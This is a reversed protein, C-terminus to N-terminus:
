GQPTDEASASGAVRAVLVKDVRLGDMDVVEFSLGEWDFCDGARPVRGLRAMVMGGVTQYDEEPEDPLRSVGVSEKLEKANLLGDVLWSGDRRRVVQAQRSEELDGVLAQLVDAPTVLGETDGREDVVLALPLGSRKFAALAETAPASEPLLPPTRLSGLLDAPRGELIERSLADKISAV